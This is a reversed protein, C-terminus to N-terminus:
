GDREMEGLTSCPRWVDASGFVCTLISLMFFAHALTAAERPARKIYENPSCTVLCTCFISVAVIHHFGKFLRAFRELTM